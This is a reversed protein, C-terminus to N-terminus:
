IYANCGGFWQDMVQKETCMRVDFTADEWWAGRKPMNDFAYITRPVNQNVARIPVASDIGYVLGSKATVIDDLVNNSFGLMHIKRKPNLAHCYEAFGLRTGVPTDILNRPIGWWTIEDDDAFQQACDFWEKRSWGQPVIMFRPTLYAKEFAKTWSALAVRCNEITAKSDLMVDPLVTVTPNVIKAAEIIMNIDVANGLEVVSNDLIVTTKWPTGQNFIEYYENPRAVIDHALVLHHRGFMSHKQLGFYIQPPCVPAFHAM